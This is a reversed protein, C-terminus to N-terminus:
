VRLNNWVLPPVTILSYNETSLFLEQVERYTKSKRDDYFVCKRQGSIVAYNLTM